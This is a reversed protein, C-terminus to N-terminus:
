LEWEPGSAQLSPSAQIPSPATMGVRSSHDRGKRAEGAAKQEIEGKVCFSEAKEEGGQMLFQSRKLGVRQPKRTMKRLWTESQLDLLWRSKGGGGGRLM